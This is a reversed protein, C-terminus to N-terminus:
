SYSLSVGKLGSVQRLPSPWEEAPTVEVRERWVQASVTVKQRPFAPAERWLRDCFFLQEVEPSM